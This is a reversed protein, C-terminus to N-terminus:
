TLFLNDLVLRPNLNSELDHFARLINRGLQPNKYNKVWQGMAIKLFQQVRSAEWESVAQATQLRDVLAGGELLPFYAAAQKFFSYEDPSSALTKALGIRGLALRVIEARDTEVAVIDQIAATVDADQSPFFNIRQTRSAITPLLQYYNATTLFIVSNQPPEELLKLLSNAAELTMKEASTVIAVKKALRSSSTLSLASQLRRAEAIGLGEPSDYIFLDFPSTAGLIVALDKAFITKGIHEPGSFVYAHALRESGSIASFLTKQKEHGITNPFQM